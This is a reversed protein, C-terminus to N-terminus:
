SYIRIIFGSILFILFVIILAGALYSLSFAEIICEILFYVAAVAMGFALVMCCAFNIRKALAIILDKISIKDLYCLFYIGIILAIILSAIVLAGALYSFSFIEIIFEIALYAIKLLLVFCCVFYIRKALAIILDKISVEDLHLLFYIGITLINILVLLDM